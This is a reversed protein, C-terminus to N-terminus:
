GFAEIQGPSAKVKEAQQYTPMVLLPLQPRKGELLEAITLIQLRPYDRAHEDDDFPGSTRFVGAEAAEKLMPKSPEELTLFLGLPAKEREMAGKLSRIQSVDVHGSKVEAIIESVEGKPGSTFTIMGDIGADAGKKRKGGKPQADILSLAWYQFEYRQDLSEQALMRAGEVTTPQGKVPMHELGFSDRLRARMVVIALHTVDIGIWRCDLKQAAVLATGCGCFPISSSTV